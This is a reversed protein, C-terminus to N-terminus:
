NKHVHCWHMYGDDLRLPMGSIRIVHEQWGPAPSTTQLDSLMSQSRHSSSVKLFWLRIKPVTSPHASGLWIFETKSENLVLCNKLMRQGMRDIRHILRDNSQLTDRIFCAAIPGHLRNICDQAEHLWVRQSTM